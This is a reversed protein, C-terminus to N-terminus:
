RQAVRGAAWVATIILTALPVVLVATAEIPRARFFACSALWLGHVLNRAPLVWVFRWPRPQVLRGIIWLLAVVGLAGAWFALLQHLTWSLLPM